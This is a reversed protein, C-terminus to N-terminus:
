KRSRTKKSRKTKRRGTGKQNPANMPKASKKAKLLNRRRQLFNEHENTTLGTKWSRPLRKTEEILNDIIPM